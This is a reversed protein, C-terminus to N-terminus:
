GLSPGINNNLFYKRCFIQHFFQRKESLSSSTEAYNNDYCQNESFFMMKEGFIPLFRLFNHDCCRGRAKEAEFKKDTKIYGGFPQM